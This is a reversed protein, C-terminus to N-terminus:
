ETGPNPTAQNVCCTEPVVEPPIDWSAAECVVREGRVRSGCISGGTRCVVREGRGRSPVYHALVSANRFVVVHVQSLARCM